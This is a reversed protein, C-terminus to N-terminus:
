CVLTQNNFRRSFIFSLDHSYGNAFVNGHAKFYYCREVGGAKLRWDAAQCSKPILADPALLADHATHGSFTALHRYFIGLFSKELFHYIKDGKRFIGLFTPSKPLNITALLMQFNGMTWYIALDPWVSWPRDSVFNLVYLLPQTQLLLCWNSWSNRGFLLLM